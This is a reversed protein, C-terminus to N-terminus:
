ATRRVARQSSALEADSRFELATAKAAAADLGTGRGNKAKLAEVGAIKELTMADQELLAARQEALWAAAFQMRVDRALVLANQIQVFTARELNARAAGVRAPRRLLDVPIAIAGELVGSGVPDLLSLTPNAPTRADFLDAEALGLDALSARFAPSNWLAAAVAENETMGDTLRINAPLVASKGDPALGAGLRTSVENAVTALTQSAGNVCGSLAILGAAAFTAEFRKM